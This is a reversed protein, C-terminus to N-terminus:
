VFRIGGMWNMDAPSESFEELKEKHTFKFTPKVGMAMLEFPNPSYDDVPQFGFDIRYKKSDFLVGYIGDQLEFLAWLRSNKCFKPHFYDAYEKDGSKAYIAIERKEPCLILNLKNEKGQLPEEVKIITPSKKGHQSVILAKHVMNKVKDFSYVQGRGRGLKFCVVKQPAKDLRGFANEIQFDFPHEILNKM